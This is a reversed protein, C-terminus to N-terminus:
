ESDVINQADKKFDEYRALASKLEEERNNDKLIEILKDFNECLRYYTSPKNEEAQALKLLTNLYKNQMQVADDIRHMKILIGRRAEINEFLDEKLYKDDPDGYSKRNEYAKEYLKLAKEYQKIKDNLYIQALYNFNSIVLKEGKRAIGYLITHLDDAIKLAVDERKCMFCYNAFAIHERIMAQSTHVEAKTTYNEEPYDIIMQMRNKYGIDYHNYALEYEGLTIYEEAIYNHVEDNQMDLEKEKEVLTLLVKIANESDGAGIYAQALDYYGRLVNYKSDDDNNIKCIRERILLTKFAIETCWTNYDEHTIFCLGFSSELKAYLSLMTLYEEATKARESIRDLLAYYRRAVPLHFEHNLNIRLMYCNEHFSTIISYVFFEDAGYDYASDIFDCTWQTDELAMLYIERADATGSFYVEEQAFDFKLTSKEGKSLRKVIFENEDNKGAYYLLYDRKMIHTDHLGLVYRFLKDTYTKIDVGECFANKREKSVFNLKSFHDYEFLGGTYRLFRATDVTSWKTGNKELISKLEDETFGKHSVATFCVLDKCFEEDIREIAENVFDTYLENINDPATNIVNELFLNIGSAGVGYDDAKKFDDSDLMLLRQLLVSLYLANESSKMDIIKQKLKEALEKNHYDLVGVIVKQKEGKSLKKLDFIYNNLKEKVSNGYKGTLYREDTIRMDNRVAAVFTINQPLVEPILGLFNFSPSHLHEKATYSLHLEDCFIFLRRDSNEAYKAIYSKFLTRAEDYPLGQEYSEPSTEDKHHIGLLEEFKYVIQRQILESTLSYESNKFSVYITDHKKRLNAYIKSLLVSKGSGEEGRIFFARYNNQTLLKKCETLNKRRATFLRENRGVQAKHVNFAREQWSLNRLSDFEKNFLEKVDDYIMDDFNDPLIQCNNISDWECTYTKVHAGSDIIKAKLENLKSIGVDEEKYSTTLENPVDLEDRFYFLCRDLKRGEALAGYEIELATVSKELDYLEYKKRSAARLLKDKPPVWGYREGIFILMYPRSSDIADLCVSLVKDSSENSELHETDVGWRLDIFRFSEGFNKAYDNLKPLVEIMLEDREKQMDRFTSSVFISKM